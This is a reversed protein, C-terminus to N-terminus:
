PHQQEQTLPKSSLCSQDLDGLISHTKWHSEKLNLEEWETSPQFGSVLGVGAYSTLQHPLLHGCRLLVWFQAHSETSFGVASAYWNRSFKEITRRLGQFSRPLADVAPTPHLHEILAIDSLPEMHASIVRSLHFCRGRRIVKLSATQISRSVSSLRELLAELVLNCEEMRHPCHLLQEKHSENHVASDTVPATGAVAEIRLYRGQRQYLLEPSGGCWIEEASPAWLIGTTSLPAAYSLLHDGEIPALVKWTHQRALVIKKAGTDLAKQVQLCQDTWESFSSFLRDSRLVLPQLLSPSRTAWQM